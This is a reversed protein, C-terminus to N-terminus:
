SLTHRQGSPNSGQALPQRRGPKQQPASHMGLPPAQSSPAHTQGGPLWGQPRPQRGAPLSRQQESKSQGGLLPLTQRRALPIQAHGLPLRSHPPTQMGLLRQQSSSSHSSPRKQMLPSHVQEGSSLGHLPTQMGFFWHQVLPSQPPSVTQWFPVHLHGPPWFSHPSSQM